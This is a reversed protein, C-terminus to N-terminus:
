IGTHPTEIQVLPSRRLEDWLDVYEHPIQDESKHHQVAIALPGSIGSPRQMINEKITKWILWDFCVPLGDSKRVPEADVPAVFNAGRKVLEKVLGVVLERAQGVDAARAVAPDDFVSGAIHFRRGFLPSRPM